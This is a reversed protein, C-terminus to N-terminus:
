AAAALLMASGFRLGYRGVRRLVLSPDGQDTCRPGSFKLAKALPARRKAGAVAAAVTEATGCTSLPCCPEHTRHM